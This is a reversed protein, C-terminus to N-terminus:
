HGSSAHLNGKLFNDVIGPKQRDDLNRDTSTIKLHVDYSKQILAM